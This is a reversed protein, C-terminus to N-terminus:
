LLPKVLCKLCVHKKCNPCCLLDGAQLWKDNCENCTYSIDEDWFNHSKRYNYELDYIEDIASQLQKETLIHDCM